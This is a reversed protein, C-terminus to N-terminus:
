QESVVATVTSVAAVEEKTLVISRDTSFAAVYSSNNLVFFPSISYVATQTGNHLVDGAYCATRMDLADRAIEQGSSDAFIVSCRLNGKPILSELTVREEPSCLNWTWRTRAFSADSHLMILLICEKPQKSLSEWRDELADLGSAYGRGVASPDWLVFPTYRLGPINGDSDKKLRLQRTQEEESAFLRPILSHQQDYSRFNKAWAAYDSGTAPKNGVSVIEGRPRAIAALAADLKKALPLYEELVPKVTVSFKLETGQSSVEGVVPKKDVVAMISKTRLQPITAKFIETLGVTQDAKTVQQAM